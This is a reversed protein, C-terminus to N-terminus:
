RKKNITCINQGIIIQKNVGRKIKIKKQHSHLQFTTSMAIFRYKQINIKLNRNTSNNNLQSQQNQEPSVQPCFQQKQIYFVSKVLLNDIRSSNGTYKEPEFNQSTLLELKEQTGLYLSDNYYSINTILVFNQNKKDGCTQKLYLYYMYFFTLFLATFKKVMCIKKQTHHICWITHLPHSITCPTQTPSTEPPFFLSVILKKESVILIQKKLMNTFTPQMLFITLNLVM